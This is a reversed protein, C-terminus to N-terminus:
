RTVTLMSFANVCIDQPWCAWNGQAAGTVAPLNGVRAPASATSWTWLSGDAKLAVSGTTGLSTVASLGAVPVASAGAAAPLAWVTGNSKLAFQDNIATGATMGPVTTATGNSILAVTGDRRLAYPGAVDAANNLGAIPRVGAADWTLMTGDARVAARDAVATIGTLGPIKAPASVGTSTLAGLQGAQSDGTGWVTGDSQLIYVGGRYGAVEKVGAVNLVKTPVPPDPVGVGLASGMFGSYTHDGDSGWAWLTGDTKVAYSLESSGYVGTGKYVARVGTLSIPSPIAAGNSTSGAGLQGGRNDGWSWVTNAVPASGRFYGTEDVNLYVSSSSSNYFDVISDASSRVLVSNAVKQNAVFNVNRTTPRATGHEYAVIAGSSAGAEAYVSLIATSAGPGAVKLSLTAGPALTDFTQVLQMAPVRQYMGPATTLGGRVYGLVDALVDFTGDPDWPSSVEVRGDAGIPVVFLNTTPVGTNFPMGALRTFTALDSASSWYVPDYIGSDFAAISSTAAVNTVTLAVVVATAGSAPVGNRGAVPWSFNIGGGPNPGWNATSAGLGSRTDLSRSPTLPVFGGAATVSGGLYYGSLDAVLDIPQSSSNYFNVRGDASVKSLVLVTASKGAVFNITSMNPRSTGTAYAIVRGAAGQNLANASLVVAGVGSTPVGGKGGVQLTLTGGAPIKKKAAGTGNRTDLLRTPALPVYAGPLPAAAAASVALPLPATSPRPAAATPTAALLTGTLAAILVTTIVSTIHTTIRGTARGHRGARMGSSPSTLAAGPVQAAGPPIKHPSPAADPPASTSQARHQGSISMDYNRGEIHATM